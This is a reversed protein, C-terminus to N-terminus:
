NSYLLNSWYFWERKEYLQQSYPIWAYSPEELDNIRNVYLQGLTMITKTKFWM